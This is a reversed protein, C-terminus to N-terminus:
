SGLKGRVADRLQQATRHPYNNILSVRAKFDALSVAADVANLVANTKDAHANFEHLVVLMFARLIDEQQDLQESLSDRQTQLRAADAADKEGQTMEEVRDAVWKRYQAPIAQWQTLQARSCVVWPPPMDNASAVLDLTSPNVFDAM